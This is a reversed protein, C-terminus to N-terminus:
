IIKHIMNMKQNLEKTMNPTVHTYVNNTIASTAHGVRQMVVKQNIGMEALLSIHSHRMCHCSFQKDLGTKMGYYKFSRNLHGINQPQGSRTCFIYGHNKYSKYPNDHNITLYEEIIEIARDNLDVERYSCLTKTTTHTHKTVGETYDLNTEVKITRDARYYNEEKLAALECYRLGTLFLFEITLAIFYTRHNGSDRMKNLVQALDEPTFLKRNYKKIDDLTKKSLNLKVDLTPDKEIIGMRKAFDFISKCTLFYGRVTGSKLNLSNFFIQIQFTTFEKIEQNGFENAFRKIQRKRNSVTTAKLSRSCDKLWLSAVSSFTFSSLNLNTGLINMGSQEIRQKAKSLLIKRAKTKAQKSNSTLTVSVKEENKTTTNFYRMRWVFKNKRAESWLSGVKIDEVKM